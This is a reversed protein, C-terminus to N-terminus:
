VPRLESYVAKLTTDKINNSLQRMKDLATSFVVDIKEYAKLYEVVLDVSVNDPITVYQQSLDGPVTIPNAMFEGQSIGQSEFRLTSKGIYGFSFGTQNPPIIVGYYSVDITGPWSTPPTSVFFYDPKNGDYGQYPATKKAIIAKKVSDPIVTSKKYNSQKTQQTQEKIVRRVIRALDSETLKIVKKMNYNKIIFIFM